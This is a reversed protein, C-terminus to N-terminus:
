RSVSWHQYTSIISELEEMGPTYLCAALALVKFKRCDALSIPQPTSFPVGYQSRILVHPTLQPSLPVTFIKLPWYSHLRSYKTAAALGFDYFQETSKMCRVSIHM